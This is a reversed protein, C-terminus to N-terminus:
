SNAVLLQPLLNGSSFSIFLPIGCHSQLVAAGWFDRWVDWCFPRWRGQIGNALTIGCPWFYQRDQSLQVFGSATAWWTFKSWMEEGEWKALFTFSVCLWVCRDTQWGLACGHSRGAKMLSVLVDTPNPLYRASCWLFFWLCYQQPINCCSTDAWLVLHNIICTSVQHIWHNISGIILQAWVILNFAFLQRQTEANLAFFFGLM